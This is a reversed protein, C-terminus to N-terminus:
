LAFAFLAAAVAAFSGMVKAGSSAPVITPTSTSSGTATASGSMTSTANVGEGMALTVNAVIPEQVPEYSSCTANPSLPCSEAICISQLEAGQSPVVVTPPACRVGFLGALAKGVATIDDTAVGFSAAALAVQTIFYGVQYEDLAMYKHVQYQSADGDYLPFDKSMGEGSCGLLAGFYEYLHTLLTYQNSNTGNAPMNMTLPVAGGDDLFNQAVGSSGGANTSALGGDFYPLLNVDTGNYKGAALIGPVHVGVNPQTYNGIVATNVLLTLLTYQNKASNEKLLATTYYDCISINAPRQASAAGVLALTTLTLKM